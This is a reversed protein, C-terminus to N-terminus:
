REISAIITFVVVKEEEVESKQSLKLSVDKFYRSEEMIKMFDALIVEGIETKVYIVGEIRLDGGKHDISLHRFVMSGPTINSFEKMLSVNSVRLSRIERSLKERKLVENYLVKVEDLIKVRSKETVVRKGYDNVRVNVLIFSVLLVAFATFGIMRISIKQVKQAKELKYQIPLLDVKSRAGGRAIGILTVIESINHDVKAPFNLYETELNLMDKIFIELNKYGSGNGIIYLKSVEKGELQANYYDFSRSIESCLTEVVPRICALLHKGDLKGGILSDKNGPVGINRLQVIERPELEIAGNESIIPNKISDKIHNLGIPINRAFVLKSGTYINVTSRSHDINLIACTEDRRGEPKMSIINSLGFSDVNVGGIANIGAEKFLSLKADVEEKKAAAMIINYKKAGDEDTIENIIDFDLIVQDVDFPLIGKVRWRLAERVENLPMYPLDVRRILVSDDALCLVGKARKHGHRRVLDKLMKVVLINREEKSKFASIDKVISALVMDKSANFVIAKLYSSSIEVVICNEKKAM